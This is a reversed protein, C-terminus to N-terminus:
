RMHLQNNNLKELLTLEDDVNPVILEDQILRPVTSDNVNELQFQCIM